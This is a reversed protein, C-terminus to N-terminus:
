VGETMLWKKSREWNSKGRRTRCLCCALGAGTLMGIAMGLVMFCLDQAGQPGYRQRVSIAALAAGAAELEPVNDQCGQPLEIQLRTVSAGIKTYAKMCGGTEEFMDAPVLLRGGDKLHHEAISEASETTVAYAFNIADYTGAPGDLFAEGSMQYFTVGPMSSAFKCFQWAADSADVADITSYGLEKLVKTSWGAGAGLDLASGHGPDKLALRM